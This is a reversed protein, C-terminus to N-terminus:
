QQHVIHIAFYAVYISPLLFPMRWPAIAGGSEKSALAYWLKGKNPPGWKYTGM